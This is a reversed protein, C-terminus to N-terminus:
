WPLHEMQKKKRMYLSYADTFVTLSNEMHSVTEPIYVREVVTNDMFLNKALTTVPYGGISSPITVDVDTGTYKTITAQGNAVTYSFDGETMEGASTGVNPVDSVTEMDINQKQNNTSEAAFSVSGNTVIISAALIWALVKKGNMKLGEYVIRQKIIAKMIGYKVM